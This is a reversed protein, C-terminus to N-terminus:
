EGTPKTTAKKEIGKLDLGPLKLDPAKQEIRDLGLQTSLNQYFQLLEAKKKEDKMTVVRQEAMKGFASQGYKDNLKQYQERATELHKRDVLAKTEEIVAMAYLAEPEMTPDGECREAAKRYENYAEDLQKMAPTEGAENILKDLATQSQREFLSWNEATELRSMYFWRSVLVLAIIFIAAAVVYGLMSRRPREKMRQVFHGVGEALTNTELEKRHEAKM